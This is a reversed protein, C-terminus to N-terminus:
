EVIGVVPVYQLSRRANVIVITLLIPPVGVIFELLYVAVTGYGDPKVKM